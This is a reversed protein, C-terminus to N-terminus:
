SSQGITPSRFQENHLESLGTPRAPKPPPTPMPAPGPAPVQMTSVDIVPPSSLSNNTMNKYYYTYWICFLIIVFAIVGISAGAAVGASTTSTSSTSGSVPQATSLAVYDNQMMIEFKDFNVSGMGTVPDWGPAAIYGQDCCLTAVNAIDNNACCNNSGSTVDNFLGAAKASYLTPNLCGLLPLGQSQRKSNLLTVIVYIYVNIYVYIYVFFDLKIPM